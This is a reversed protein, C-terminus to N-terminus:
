NLINHKNDNKNQLMETKLHKVNRFTQVHKYM